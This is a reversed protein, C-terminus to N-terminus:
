TARVRRFKAPGYLAVVENGAIAALVVAGGALTAAAPTEGVGLWV